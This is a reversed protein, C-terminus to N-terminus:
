KVFAVFDPYLMFINRIGLENFYRLKKAITLRDDFIVFHGCDNEDMFTFYKCKLENSFFISSNHVTILKNIDDLTLDKGNNSLSPMSFDACVPVINIGIRNAGYKESFSTLVEDLSGGSIDTPLTIVANKVYKEASVPVFFPINAKYLEADLTEILDGFLIGELDAFVGLFGQKTVEYLVSEAFLKANGSYKTKGGTVIGMYSSSPYKIINRITLEGNKGIGYCLNLCPYGNKKVLECDKSTAVVILNNFINMTYNGRKVIFPLSLIIFRNFYIISRLFYECFPNLM